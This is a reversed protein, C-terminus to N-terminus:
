FVDNKATEKKYDGKTVVKLTDVFDLCIYLGNSYQFTFKKGLPDIKLGKTVEGLLSHFQKNQLVLNGILM